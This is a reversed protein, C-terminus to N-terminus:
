GLVRRTLSEQAEMRNQHISFNRKCECYEGTPKYTVRVTPRAEGDKFVDVTIDVINLEKPNPQERNEDM